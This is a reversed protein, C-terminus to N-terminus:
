SENEYSEGEREISSVAVDFQVTTGVSEKSEITLKSNHLRAIENCLALGLGAGGMKRSRSKDIMYFPQIIKELEAKPIGRGCDAVSFRYRDGDIKGFLTIGQGKQSAKCANDILNYLLTKLLSPEAFIYAKEYKVHLKLGYKKLLFAVSGRLEKILHETNLNVCKIDSNEMVIIELLNASLKELRKGERYIYDACERRKDADLEYTRLMDAYGIVSTLPTKLEHTFNAVFDDRDQAAKKLKDTYSEINEAMTNFSESLERVEGTSSMEVRKSFNGGAIEKAADSLKVLPRTLFKSFLVLVLSSVMAVILLIIRFIGCYSDRNFYIESIDTLTEVYLDRNSISIHSVAQFYHRGKSQAIRHSRMDKDIATIFTIDDFETLQTANGIKVETDASSGSVQQLFNNIIYDFSNEGYGMTDANSCTAYLSLTIYSNNDNLTSTKEELSSTFVANILLFGGIGFSVIIMIFSVFFIKWAFKM